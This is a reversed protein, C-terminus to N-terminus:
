RCAELWAQLSGGVGEDIMRNLDSVPKWNLQERARSCDFIAKHTRSEWDHYSPVRIRDPHRVALKVLWKFFDSAYFRWIPRYRVTM